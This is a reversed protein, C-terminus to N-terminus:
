SGDDSLGLAELDAAEGAVAAGNVIAELAPARLGRTRHEAGIREYTRRSNEVGYCDQLFTQRDPKPNGAAAAEAIADM